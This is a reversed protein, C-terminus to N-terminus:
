QEFNLHQAIVRAGNHKVYIRSVVLWDAVMDSKWRVPDCGDVVERGRRAVTKAM